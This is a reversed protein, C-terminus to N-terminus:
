RAELLTISIDNNSCIECNKTSSSSEQHPYFAPQRPKPLSKDGNLMHIVSSMNPRNEPREQVCLLGIQICRLVQVEMISDGLSKDVLEMAMEKSWLEWAHGLLNLFQHSIPLERNKMGSVVELIIVGFSFVDSKMSFSGHMAYEPSIYGHTGMVRRTNAVTQDGGFIRALGFDSIKPNMDHDLLINSTKLDRHIIRLRSDHHLYILGRAIGSIIQFRKTWDLLERRGDDLM